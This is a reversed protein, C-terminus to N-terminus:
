VTGANQALRADIAARHQRYYAIVADLAEKPLEYDRAVQAPDNGAAPLHGVLAWIPIGTERIRAEGDFSTYPSPEIWRSILEQDRVTDTSM